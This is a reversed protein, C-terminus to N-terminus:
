APFRPPRFLSDPRLSAFFDSEQAPLRVFFLSPALLREPSLVAPSSQCCTQAPSPDERDSRPSALGHECSADAPAGAHREHLDPSPASMACAEPRLCSLFPQAWGLCLIAALAVACLRKGTRGLAMASIQWL